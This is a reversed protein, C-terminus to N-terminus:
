KSRILLSGDKLGYMRPYPRKFNHFFKEGPYQSDSGKTGEIRTISEYIKVGPNPSPTQRKRRSKTKTGSSVNRASSIRKPKIVYFRGDKEFIFSGPIKSEKKRAALKSTFSGHFTFAKGRITSNKRVIPDSPHIIEATAYDSDSTSTISVNYGIRGYEKVKRISVDHNLQRALTSAYGYAEKYDFFRESM